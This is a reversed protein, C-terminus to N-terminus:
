RTTEEDYTPTVDLSFGDPSDHCARRVYPRATAALETFSMQGSSGQLDMEDGGNSDCLIKDDSDRVSEFGVTEEDNEDVGDQGVPHPEAAIQEVGVKIIVQVVKEGLDAALDVDRGDGLCILLLQCGDFNVVLRDLVQVSGAETRTVTVGVLLGLFAPVRGGARPQLALLRLEGLSQIFGPRDLHHADAGLVAILHFRHVAVVGDKWGLGPRLGATESLAASHLIEDV